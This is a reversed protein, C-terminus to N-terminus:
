AVIRSLHFKPLAIKFEAHLVLISRFAFRDSFCDEFAGNLSDALVHLCVLNPQEVDVKLCRQGVPAEDVQKAIHSDLSWQELMICDKLLLYSCSLELNQGFIKV